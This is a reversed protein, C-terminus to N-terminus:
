NPGWSNLYMVNRMSEESQKPKDDRLKRSFLASYSSSLRQNAQSFSRLHTKARQQALRMTQSWRCIGQDRKLAEVVGVSAAAVWARNAVSSSSSM